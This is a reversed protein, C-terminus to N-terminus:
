GMSPLWNQDAHQNPGEGRTRGFDSGSGHGPPFLSVQKGKGTICAIISRLRLLIMRM